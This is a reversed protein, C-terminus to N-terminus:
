APEAHNTNSNGRLFGHTSKNPLDEKGVVRFLARTKVLFVGESAIRSVVERAKGLKPLSIIYCRSGVRM